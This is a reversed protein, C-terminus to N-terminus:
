GSTKDKIKQRLTEKARQVRKKSAAVTIDHEAAIELHSKGNIAIEKLLKFAESGAIDGYLTDVKFHDSSVATEKMREAIYGSLIRNATSRSRKMNAIVNKLTKVLWGKPNPSYCLSEPKQCAICFTEQVAEEALADNSLSSRAYEFLLGYMQLYLLEIRKIYQSDM